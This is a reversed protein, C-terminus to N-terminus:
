EMLTLVIMLGLIAGVVPESYDIPKQPRLYGFVYYPLGMFLTGLAYYAHLPKNIIFALGIIAPAGLTMRLTMMALGWLRSHDPDHGIAASWYKDWAPTCWLMLSAWLWGFVELMLLTEPIVALSASVAMLMTSLLRGIVTSNVLNFLKTGRARNLLAYFPILAYIM